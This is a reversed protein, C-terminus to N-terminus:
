IGQQGTDGKIGQISLKTDGKIGQIEQIVQQGTEGLLGEREKPGIFDRVGYLRFM